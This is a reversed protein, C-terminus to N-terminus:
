SILIRWAAPYYNNIRNGLHKILGICIGQYEMVFWGKEKSELDFAQKRLYAIAQDANVTLSPAEPNLLLSLALEHEPNFKGHALSGALIGAKRVNLMKSLKLYDPFVSEPITYVNNDARLYIMSQDQSIWGSLLSVENKPLLAPKIENITGTSRNEKLRFASAFFGEGEATGPFFRYGIGGSASVTRTIGWEAQISVEVPVLSAQGMLWDMIEENEELSYSCTSYILLGEEKLSPLADALIRKQREACHKVNEASWETIADPDKRFLGSGSCPADVVLVDFYGGLDRCQVPDSNCIMIKPDGWKVVNEYLISVRTRILENAVVLRVQPLSALLTTKGGPAACLDLVAIENEDKTLENVLHHLFMSSAEQVYYAGGHIAPDLTFRPRETLYYGHDCWPVAGKVLLMSNGHFDHELVKAANLRISVPPLHQHAELFITEDFGPVVRLSKLLAIPIDVVSM